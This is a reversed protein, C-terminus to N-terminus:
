SVEVDNARLAGDDCIFGGGVQHLEPPRLLRKAKEPTSSRRRLGELEHRGPHYHYLGAKLGTVRLAADSLREQIGQEM